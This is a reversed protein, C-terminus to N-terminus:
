IFRVKLNVPKPQPLNTMWELKEKEIKSMNRWLGKSDGEILEKAEEPIEIFHPFICGFSNM